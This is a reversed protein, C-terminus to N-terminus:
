PCGLQDALDTMSDAIYTWAEAAALDHSQAPGYERPRAIFATQLGHARAAALDSNHAAVML